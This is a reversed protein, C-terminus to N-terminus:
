GTGTTTEDGVWTRGRARVRRRLGAAPGAESLARGRLRGWFCIIM